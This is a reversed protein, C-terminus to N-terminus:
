FVFNLDVFCFSYFYLFSSFIFKNRQKKFKFKLLERNKIKEIVVIGFDLKILDKNSPIKGIKELLYSGISRTKNEEDKLELDFYDEFAYVLAKSNVMYWGASILFIMEEEKSAKIINYLLNSETLIGLFASFEDLVILIKSKEKSLINIADLLSISDPIMGAKEIIEILKINKGEVFNKILCKTSVVGLIHEKDHEKYIPFYKYLLNEQSIEKLVDFVFDQSSFMEIEKRHTLAVKVDIDKLKIIKKIMKTINKDMSGTSEAKKLVSIIIEEGISQEVKKTKILSTILSTSIVVPLFLYYFLKLIYILYKVLFENHIIALQKPILESFVLISITLIGTIIGVSVNQFTNISLRTVYVSLLVNAINNGILVTSLFKDSNDIFFRLTKAREKGSKVIREIKELSLSTFATEMSSFFASLFFLSFILILEFM